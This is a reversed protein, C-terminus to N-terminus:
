TQAHTYRHAHIFGLKQTFLGMNPRSQVWTQAHIYGFKHTFTDLNTRSHVWIQAHTCGLKHTFSGLNTCAQKGHVGTKWTADMSHSGSFLGLHKFFHETAVKFYPEIAAKLYAWYAWNCGEFLSLLSLQLRWIPEIPETTAQLYAWLHPPYWSATCKITGQLLTCSCQVTFICLTGVPDYISLTDIPYQTMSPFRIQQTM